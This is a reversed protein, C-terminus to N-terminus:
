APRGDTDIVPGSEPWVPPDIATFGAGMDAKFEAVAEDIERRRRVALPETRQPLARQAAISALEPANEWCRNHLWTKALKTYKADEGEREARYRAAGAIIVEPDVGEAIRQTWKDWAAQKDRRRPYAAWFALFPADYPVPAAGGRRDDEDGSQEDPDAFEDVLASNPELQTVDKLGRILNKGFAITRSNWTVRQRLQAVLADVTWGRDLLAGTLTRIDAVEEPKTLRARQPAGYVGRVVARITAVRDVESTAPDANAAASGDDVCVGARSSTDVDHARTIHHSKQEHDLIEQGHDALSQGVAGGATKAADSTPKAAKPFHHERWRKWTRFGDFDDPPDFHVTYINRTKWNDATRHQRYDLGGADRLQQLYKRVTTRSKINFAAGIQEMSPMTTEGDDRALSCLLGHMAAAPADVAPHLALWLFMKGFPNGNRGQRLTGEAHMDFDAADTM